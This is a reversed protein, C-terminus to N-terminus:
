KILIMKKVDSFNGATLKYFYIGSPYDAGSWEVEYTGPQLSQNILVAKEQGIADYVILKVFGGESRETGGKAFPPNLPTQPIEFKIKTVPNFPNPYNQYLVFEKPIHSSPNNIGTLIGIRCKYAKGTFGTGSGTSGICWLESSDASIQKTEMAFM